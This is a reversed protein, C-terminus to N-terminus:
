MNSADFQELPCCEPPQNCVLATDLACEVALDCTLEVTQYSAPFAPLAMVLYATLSTCNVGDASCGSIQGQMIQVRRQVLAQAKPM